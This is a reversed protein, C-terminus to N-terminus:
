PKEKRSDIEAHLANAMARMAENGKGNQSLGGLALEIRKLVDWGVMQSKLITLEGQTQLQQAKLTSIDASIQPLKSTLEDLKRYAAIGGGACGLIAAVVLPPIVKDRLTASFGTDSDRDRRQYRDNQQM